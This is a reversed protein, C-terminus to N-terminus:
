PSELTILSVDPPTLVRLRPAPGREMGVGRSVYIRRGDLEHLGGGAVRGPVSSFTMLPGIWPLRVQGGHTHGAVVLDVRSRPALALVRDPYHSLLIRVDEVSPGGELNRITRDAADSLRPGAGGITLTRDKVRLTVVDNDLWRVPTGDFLAHMEADSDVNGATVFVGGPAELRLLLERLPGRERRFAEDTGQFFDGPLLVVDPRLARLTEVARREYDTVRDTQLDALVGIRVTERGTRAPDLLVRATETTLRYPEVFTAYYGFAPLLLAGLGLAIGRTRDTGGRRVWVVALGLALVPAAVVLALYVLNLLAFELM